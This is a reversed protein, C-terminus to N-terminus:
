KIDFPFYTARVRDYTGDAIVEAIARDFMEALGRDGKRLAVGIGEGRDVPLDSIFRCCGAGDRGELFRSLVLKDGLVYDLRGTLLDLEAEELKHYPRIM